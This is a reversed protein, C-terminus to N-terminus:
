VDQQGANRFREIPYDPVMAADPIAPLDDAVIKIAFQDHGWQDSLQAVMVIQVDDRLALARKLEEFSVNLRGCRRGNNM